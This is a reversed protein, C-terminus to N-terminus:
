QKTFETFSDWYVRGSPDDRWRGEDVVQEQDDVITYTEDANFFLEFGSLPNTWENGVLTPENSFFGEFGIGVAYVDTPDDDVLTVKTWPGMDDDVNWMTLTTEANEEVVYDAHRLQYMEVTGPQEVFEFLEVIGILAPDNPDEESSIRIETQLRDGDVNIEFHIFDGDDEETSVWPSGDAVSSPTPNQSTFTTGLTILEDGVIEFGSGGTPQDPTLRLTGNFVGHAGAEFETFTVETNELEWNVYYEDYIDENGPDSERVAVRSASLFILSEEAATTNEYTEGVDIQGTGDPETSEWDSGQFGEIRDPTGTGGAVFTATESDGELTYSPNSLTLVADTDNDVWVGLLEADTSPGNGNDDDDDSCGLTNPVLLAVLLLLSTIYRM